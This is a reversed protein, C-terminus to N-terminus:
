KDSDNEFIKGLPKNATPLKLNKGASQHCCMVMYRTKEANVGLGIERSAELLGETNKQITNINEELVLSYGFTDPTLLYHFLCSHFSTSFCCLPKHRCFESCQCV